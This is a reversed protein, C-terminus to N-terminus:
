STARLVTACGDVGPTVGSGVVATTGTTDLCYGGFGAPLSYVAGTGPDQELNNGGLAAIAHQGTDLSSAQISQYVRTQLQQMSSGWQGILQGSQAFGAADTDGIQLLIQEEQQYRGALQSALNSWFVAAPHFSGLVQSCVAQVQRAQGSPAQCAGLLAVSTWGSGSGSALLPNRVSLVTIFGSTSLPQGQAVGAVRFAASDSSTATLVPTGFSASQGLATLIVQLAQQPTWPRSSDQLQTQVAASSCTTLNPATFPDAEYAQDCSDEQEQYRLDSVVIGPFVDISSTSGGRTLKLFDTGAVPQASWGVPVGVTYDGQPSPRLALQSAPVTTAGAPGGSQGTGCAALWCGAVAILAGMTVAKGGLLGARRGNGPRTAGPRASAAQGREEPVHGNALDTIQAYM